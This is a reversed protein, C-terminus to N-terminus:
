EIVELAKQYAFRRREKMVIEYSDNNLKLLLKCSGYLSKYEELAKMYTEIALNRKDGKIGKLLLEERLDVLEDLVM